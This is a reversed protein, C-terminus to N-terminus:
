RDSSVSIFFFKIIYKIAAKAAATDHAGTDSTFKSTSWSLMLIPAAPPSFVNLTDEGPLQTAIVSDGHIV